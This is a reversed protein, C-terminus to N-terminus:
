GPSHPTESATGAEPLPRRAVIWWAWGVGPAVIRDEIARVRSVLRDPPLDRRRLAGPLHAVIRAAEALGLGRRTLVADIFHPALIERLDDERYHRRWGLASTESPRKGLRGVDRLYRAANPADLWALPGEAPVRALLEGGPVLVRAAEALAAEDDVVVALEDLLLVRAFAADVFPWATVPPSWPVGPIQAM